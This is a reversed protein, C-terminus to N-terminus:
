MRPTLASCRPPLPPPPAAGAGGSYELTEYTRTWVDTAQLEHCSQCRQGFVIVEHELTPEQIFSELMACGAFAVPLTPWPEPVTAAGAYSGPPERMTFRYGCDDMRCLTGPVLTGQVRVRRDRVDRGVLEAVSFSDVANSETERLLLWALAVGTALAAILLKRSM